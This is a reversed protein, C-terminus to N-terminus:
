SFADFTQQRRAAITPIFPIVKMSEQPKAMRFFGGKQVSNIIEHSM